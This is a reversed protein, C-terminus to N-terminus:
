PQLLCRGQELFSGSRLEYQYWGSSLGEPSWIYDFYGSPDVEIQCTHVLRGSSNRITLYVWEFEALQGTFHTTKHFPNPYVEHRQELVQNSPLFDIIVTDKHPVIRRLLNTNNESVYLTDGTPSAAIGDPNTFRASDIHGNVTGSQGTGAFVRYTGDLEVEYIRHKGTSTLYLKGKSFCMFGVPLDPITTVLTKQGATDLRYLNGDKLNLVHLRERDDFAIGVPQDFGNAFTRIVGSPSIKSVTGNGYNTVYLYGATDLALGSPRPFGSAFVQINGATDVTSIEGSTFEAVYLLGASDMVMGAPQTLGYAYLQSSQGDPTIKYIRTGNFGSGFLDCGFINGQGDVLLGNNIRPVPGIVKEVRQALLPHLTQILVLSLILLPTKM